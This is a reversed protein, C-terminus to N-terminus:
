HSALPEAPSRSPHTEMGWFAQWASRGALSERKLYQLSALVEDMAPGIMLVSIAGSVLCLTCWSDFLVPQLIVLVVSVVGLPGVALGFLIVMWPMTRWRKRGGVAGAIADVLYSLAGVAADPVPHMLESVWSTLIRHSGRGFFPEWVTELWELQYFALYGAVAFGLGALAIIPWRQRWSSPNYDWGPPADSQVADHAKM